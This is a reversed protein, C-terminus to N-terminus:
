SCAPAGDSGSSVNPFAEDDFGGDLDFNVFMYEDMSANYASTVDHHGDQQMFEGASPLQSSPNSPFLSSATESTQPAFETAPPPVQERTFGLYTLAEDELQRRTGNWQQPIDLSMPPAGTPSPEFDDVQHHFRPTREWNTSQSASSDGVISRNESSPQPSLPAEPSNTTAIASRYTTFVERIANGILNEFQFYPASPDFLARAADPIDMNNVQESLSDMVIRPVEQHLLTELNADNAAALDYPM